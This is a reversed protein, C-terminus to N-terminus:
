EETRAFMKGYTEIILSAKDDLLGAQVLLIENNAPPM